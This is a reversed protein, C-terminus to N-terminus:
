GGFFVPSSWAMHGDVQVLKVWYAHQGAPPDPDHFEFAVDLPRGEPACRSFRVQQNVGGADFVSPIPGLDGVKVTFRGPRAEFSITPDDGGLKLFVGDIDGSTTSRVELESTSVRAVGQDPQDFAYARFDEIVGGQVSIEGDWDVKKQRSKVRVGSWEVRVWDADADGAFPHRYVVEADRRVEVDLLPATGVARISLRVDGVDEVVDGMMRDGCRVDLLIRQGTTAYCHRARLAEWIGERTLEEAYIGTYGGYVDFTAFDRALPRLPASLGPRGSHDDSQAVIGVVMGRRMADEAFWEFTGHHSHIEVARVIEPDYFDFNGYRGGVHAIAMVDDRGRFTEWLASIPYRDTEESSGDHIQWHASRHIPQDDKLYYINHDGGAPTLGSWEYGLFTIFRGPEHFRKTEDCVEGWHADTVQFDNGQWSAVDVWARDRAFRYYEAVTGTGVTERTQGHMDGWFLPRADRSVQVPNSGGSLEGVRVSVRYVGEEPFRIGGVDGEGPRLAFTRPFGSVEPRCSVEVEGSAEPIPNDWADLVRVRLRAEKLPSVTSPLVAAVKAPTGPVIKIYPQEPLLCYERTGFCDVWVRFEHATEPYTQLTWGPSGGSRDGFTVTIEEGPALSGDYVRVVVGNRWPRMWYRNEYWARIRADGTTHASAYEPESPREFQPMRSDSVPRRSILISGGDDIGYAGVTYTLTWTGVTSVAFSGKPEVEARGLFEANLM